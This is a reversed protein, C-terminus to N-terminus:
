PGAGCVGCRNYASPVPPGNALPLAQARSPLAPRPRMASTQVSYSTRLAAAEIRRSKASASSPMLSTAVLGCAIVTAFTGRCRLPIQNSFM